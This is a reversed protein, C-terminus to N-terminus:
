VRQPTLPDLGPNVDDHPDVPELGGLGAREGRVEVGGELRDAGLNLLVGHVRHLSPAVLAVGVRSPPTRGDFGQLLEGIVGQAARVQHGCRQGAGPGADGRPLPGTRQALHKALVARRRAHAPRHSRRGTQARVGARRQLPHPTLHTGGAVLQTPPQAQQHAFRPQVPVGVAGLLHRHPRAVGPELDDVLPDPEGRRLDDRGRDGLVHM